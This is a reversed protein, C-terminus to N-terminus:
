LSAERRLCDECSDLAALLEVLGRPDHPCGIRVADELYTRGRYTRVAIGLARLRAALAAPDRVRALVFNAQGQAVRAGLYSLRESIATRELRAQGVSSEMAPRDALAELAALLSPGACPYPSGAARLAAAEPEGPAIAYGVRLGALGYAKSLSRVVYACGAAVLEASPDDDAYEGYAAAFHLAAGSAACAEAVSRVAARPVSLGNPNSPSVLAVLGISPDDRLAALTGALPFPEDELWRLGRVRALRGRAYAGFMEFAPEYQLLSSGPGLSAAVIRMIAEDGGATVVVRGPEVGWSAALAGELARTSPYRSLAADPVGRMASLAAGPARGENADLLLRLAPDPRRPSYAATAISPVAAESSVIESM